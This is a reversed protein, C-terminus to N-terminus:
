KQDSMKRSAKTLADEFDEKTFVRESNKSSDLVTTKERDRRAKIQEDEKRRQEVLERRNLVEMIKWSPSVCAIGTNMEVRLAVDPVENREVIRYLPTHGWDIGLLWPGANTVSLSQVVIQGPFRQEKGGQIAEPPIGGGVRFKAVKEADEGRYVQTTMVFVPSGSFGSLSRCEVLFGEFEGHKHRLPENPDAMLSLNGFRVVATNRQRGDNSILRGIMFAEDGIGIRYADIVEHTIFLDSPVSWWRFRAATEDTFDFPLVAIDDGNLHKFWDDYKASITDFGGAKRSLRIVSCNGEDPDIVHKNTIAYLFGIGPNLESVVHALFGCGGFQSGNNADDETEYFYISCDALQDPIRPM